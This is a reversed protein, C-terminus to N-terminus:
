GLHPKWFWAIEETTEPQNEHGIAPAPGRAGSGQV